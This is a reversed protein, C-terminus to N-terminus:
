TFEIEVQFEIMMESYKFYYVTYNFTCWLIIELGM